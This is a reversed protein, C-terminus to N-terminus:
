IDSISVLPANCTFCFRSINKQFNDFCFGVVNGPFVCIHIRVGRCPHHHFKGTFRCLRKDVIIQQYFFYFIGNPLSIQVYVIFIIIRGFTEGAYLMGQILDQFVSEIDTMTFGTRCFPDLRSADETANRELRSLIFHMASLRNRSKIKIQCRIHPITKDFLHFYQFLNGAFIVFVQVM